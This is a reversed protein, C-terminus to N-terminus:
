LPFKHYEQNKKSAVGRLTVFVGTRARLAGNQCSSYRDRSDGGGCGGMELRGPPRGITLRHYNGDFLSLSAELGVPFPPTHPPAVAGGVLVWVGGKAFGGKLGVRDSAGHVALEKGYISKGGTGDGDTIDGGQM